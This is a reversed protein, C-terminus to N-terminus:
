AIESPIPIVCPGLTGVWRNYPRHPIRSAHRSAVPRQKQYGHRGDYGERKRRILDDGVVGVGDHFLPREVSVHRVQGILLLVRGELIHGDGEELVVAGTLFGDRCVRVRAPGIGRAHELEREGIVGGVLVIQREVVGPVGHPRKRVGHVHVAVSVDVELQRTEGVDSIDSANAGTVNMRLTVTGNAGYLAVHATVKYYGSVFEATADLIAANIENNDAVNVVNVGAPAYEYDTDTYFYITTEPNEAVVEECLSMTKDIDVSAYSCSDDAVLNNVATALTASQAATAQRMLYRPQNDAVIVSVKGDNNFVTDALELVKDCARTFRYDGDYSARMSASSDIIAIVENEEYPEHLVQAPSALAAAAGALILVQCLILLLDRLKSTPIRRKRYKLSLKWIYTSSVFKQQYNPKIIYIIILVLIGLLGLLGLPTLFRM